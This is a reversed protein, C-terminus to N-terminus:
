IGHDDDAANQKPGLNKVPRTGIKHRNVPYKRSFQNPVPFAPCELGFFHIAMVTTPPRIIEDIHM